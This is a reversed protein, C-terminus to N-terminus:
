SGALCPVRAPGRNPPKRGTVLSGLPVGPYGERSQKWSGREARTRDARTAAAARKSTDEEKKRQWWGEHKRIQRTTDCIYSGDDDDKVVSGRVCSLQKVKFLKAM